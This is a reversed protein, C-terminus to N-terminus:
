GVQGPQRAIDDLTRRWSDKDQRGGERLLERLRERKLDKLEQKRLVVTKESTWRLFDSFVKRLAGHQIDSSVDSIM